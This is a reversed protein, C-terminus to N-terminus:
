EGPGETFNVVNKFFSFTIAYYARPLKGMVAVASGTELIFLEFIGHGYLNSVFLSV